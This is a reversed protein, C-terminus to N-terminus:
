QTWRQIYRLLESAEGNAPEIVGSAEYLNWLGDRYYFFSKVGKLNSRNSPFHQAVYYQEASKIYDERETPSLAEVRQREEPELNEKFEDLNVKVGYGLGWVQWKGNGQYVAQFYPRAKGLQDLLNMRYPIASVSTVRAELHNYVLACVESSDLLPTDTQTTPTSRNAQGCSVVLGSALALIVLIPILYRKM